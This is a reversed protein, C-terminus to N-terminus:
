SAQLVRFPLVAVVFFCRIDYSGIKREEEGDSEIEEPYHNTEERATDWRMSSLSEAYEIIRM